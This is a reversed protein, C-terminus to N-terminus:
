IDSGSPGSTYQMILKETNEAVGDLNRRDIAFPYENLRHVVRPRRSNSLYETLNNLAQELSRWPEPGAM